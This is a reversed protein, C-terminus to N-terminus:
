DLLNGLATQAAQRVDSHEDALLERLLPIAEVVELDDLGDIATYRVIYHPDNLSEILRPIALEPFLKILYDLVSSRVYPSQHTALPLIRELATTQKLSYLGRISEAVVLAREDSLYLFLKQELGSAMDPELPQIDSAVESLLTLAFLLARLETEGANGLEDWLFSNGPQGKERIRFAVEYLYAAEYGEESPPVNRFCAALQELSLDNLEPYLGMPVVEKKAASYEGLM